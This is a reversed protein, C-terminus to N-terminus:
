PCTPAGREVRLRSRGNGLPEVVIRADIRDRLAEVHSILGVQVGRAHLAELANMATQLAEADLTGFGEDLLLTEIRLRLTRFDSLALALALSVLFTEGGSLTTLPRAVDAQWVDRVRFGLGPTGDAERAVALTYRPALRTLHRNARACLEEMNLAQAFRRFEAGDGVGILDHLRRWRAHEAAAEDRAARLAQAREAAAEQTRLREREAGLSATRAHTEAILGALAERQVDISATTEPPRSALHRASAQTAAEVRDRAAALAKVLATRQAEFGRCTAEDLVRDELAAADPLDLATLAAGLSALAAEQRPALEDQRAHVDALAATAAVRRQEAGRAQTQAAVAAARTRREEAVLARERVDPDGAQLATQAQADADDWAARRTEFAALRTALAEQAADSQAALTAAAGEAQTLARAARELRERTTSASAVRRRAEDGLSAAASAATAPDPEGAIHLIQLLPGLASMDRRQEAQLAAMHTADAGRRGEIQAIERQSEGLQAEIAGRDSRAAALAGALGDAQEAARRDAEAHLGQEVYPHGPSGCLPCDEGAQLRGREKALGLAWRITELATVLAVEDRQLEGLRAEARSLAARHQALADELTRASAELAHLRSGRDSLAHALRLAHEANRQTESAASAEAALRSLETEVGLAAGAGLAERLARRAAELAHLAAALAETADATKTTSAQHARQAADLEAKATARASVLGRAAEIAPRANDLADKAAQAAQAANAEAETAVREADGAAQAEREADPLLRRASELEGTLRRADGLLVTAPAVREHEALRGLATAAALESAEAQALAERAAGLANDREANGETWAVARRAREAAEHTAALTVEAVGIAERLAREEGADLLVLGGLRAEAERLAAEAQQRRENARRGLARYRSTDTLRELIAAREDEKASLFAAFEGQALLVARQFDEVTMGDLVDAFIPKFEKAQTSSVRTQWTSNGAGLCELVRRPAQLAGDPRNRARNCTWTARYRVARGDQVRSFELVATCSGTGRSMVLKPDTEEVGHAAGLRPTVGFLALSIADMLTSKGSGTPGMVLFLPAGRLVGELDVVQRGYLSNLNEVEIRLIRM